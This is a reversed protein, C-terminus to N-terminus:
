EYFESLLISIGCMCYGQPCLFIYGMAFAIRECQCPVCTSMTGITMLWVHVGVGKNSVRSSVWRVFGGLGWGSVTGM